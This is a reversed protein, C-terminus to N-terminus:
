GQRPIDRGLDGDARALTKVSASTLAHPLGAVVDAEREPVDHLQQQKGALTATSTLPMLHDSSM